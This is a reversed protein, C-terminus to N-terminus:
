RVFYFYDDRVLHFYDESTNFFDKVGTEKEIVEEINILMDNIDEKIKQEGSYHEEKTASPIVLDEFPIEEYSYKIVSVNQTGQYLTMVTSSTRDKPHQVFDINLNYGDLQGYVSDDLGWWEGYYDFYRIFEEIDAGQIKVNVEGKGPNGNFELLKGSFTEVDGQVDIYVDGATSFFKKKLAGYLKISYSGLKTEAIYGQKLDYVLRFKVNNEDNRVEIGAL